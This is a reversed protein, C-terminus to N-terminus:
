MITLQVKFREEDFNFWNSVKEVTTNQSTHPFAMTLKEVLYKYLYEQNSQGQDSSIPM